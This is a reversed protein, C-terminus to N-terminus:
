HFMDHSSRSFTSGMGSYIQMQTLIHEFNDNSKEIPHTHTGEYTTVVVGEDRSLRQVQKKVNCGQHTCRYYSRPFNNNKVAKQGYKRWRYGDDLIDVQSRTQFAFRPRREKKEGKRRAAAPRDDVEAEKEGSGAAAPGPGGGGDKSSDDNHSLREAAFFSSPSSPQGRDHDHDRRLGSASSTAIFNYSSPTGAASSPQAHTATTGFLM